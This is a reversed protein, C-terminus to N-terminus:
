MAISCSWLFLPNEWQFHHIKGYNHLLNGSPVFLLCCIRCISDCHAVTKKDLTEVNQKPNKWKSGLTMFADLVEVPLVLLFRKPAIRLNQPTLQVRGRKGPLLTPHNSPVVAKWPTESLKEM